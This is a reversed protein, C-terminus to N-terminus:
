LKLRQQEQDLRRRQGARIATLSHRGERTTACAAYTSHRFELVELIRAIRQRHPIRGDFLAISKVNYGGIIRGITSPRPQREQSAVRKGM